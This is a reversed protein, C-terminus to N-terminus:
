FSSDDSAQLLWYCQSMPEVDNNSKAGKKHQGGHVITNAVQQSKDLHYDGVENNM